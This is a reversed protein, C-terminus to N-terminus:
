EAKEFTEVALELMKRIEIKQPCLEECKGCKVCTSAKGGKQTVIGYYFKGTWGKYTNDSNMCAFIGPIPINKACGNLCYNCKTCPVINKSALIEKVKLVADLEKQNLPEFNKMYSVNEEVMDLTGMGSLVMFIGEFGAAFRIAYSAPSGGKLDEFVSVADDPLKVLTGGKVPEMVIVPKNYKRCMEYVKRSQISADDYDVYNLQIQVVEIEPYETLIEELMEANDHFSIGFHKIKGQKKLELAIEYAHCKKYKEFLKRNQSHMLYFDFYDVGCIELQKEFLPLIEEETEFCSTSLKDTLVYSERPYRSTLVEKLVIESKGNIYIPATDFYNFGNEMFCDVMKTLETVDVDEGIMPFRMCGLGLNKKVEPFLNNM